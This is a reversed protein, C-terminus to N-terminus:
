LVNQFNFKFPEGASPIIKETTSQANVDTDSDLVTKSSSKVAKKLFMSKKSPTSSSNFKVSASNKGYKQEDQIMKERYDGLTNRMVQRKKILPANNSRLVNINKALDHAQKDAMKGSALCTELHQICWCLELEFQDEADQSLGSATNPKPPGDM